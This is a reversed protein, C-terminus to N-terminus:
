VGFQRLHHDIHKAQLKSQRRGTLRGLLPHDGWESELPKQAFEELLRLTTAREAEFDFASTAKFAPHTPLNKPWPLDIVVVRMLPMPMPPKSRPVTIRGLALNLGTNVHWVMQDVTMAGWRHETNARLSELRTRLQSRYATDHLLPM